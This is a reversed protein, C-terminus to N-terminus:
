AVPHRVTEGKRAASRVKKWDPWLHDLDGVDDPQLKALVVEYRITVTRAVDGQLSGLKLPLAGAHDFAILEGVRLWPDEGEKIGVEAHEAFALEGISMVIGFYTKQESTEPVVIGGKTTEVAPPCLVHITHGMAQM